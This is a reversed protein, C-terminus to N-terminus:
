VLHFRSIFVRKFAGHWEVVMHLNPACGAVFLVPPAHCSSHPHSQGIPYFVLQLLNLGGFIQSCKMIKGHKRCRFIGGAACNRGALAPGFVFCCYIANDSIRGQPCHSFRCPRRRTPYLGGGWKFIFTFWGSGSQSKSVWSSQVCM